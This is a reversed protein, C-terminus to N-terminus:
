HMYLRSICVTCIVDAMTYSAGKGIAYEAGDEALYDDLQTLFAIIKPECTNLKETDFHSKFTKKVFVLKHDYLSAYDPLDKKM